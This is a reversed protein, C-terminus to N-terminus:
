DRLMYKSLFLSGYEEVSWREEHAIVFFSSYVIPELLMLTPNRIGYQFPLDAERGGAM